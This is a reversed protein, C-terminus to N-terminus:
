FKSNQPCVRLFKGCLLNQRIAQTNQLIAQTSYYEVVRMKSNKTSCKQFVNCRLFVRQVTFFLSTKRITTNLAFAYFNGVFFKGRIAQTNQLIAQTSCYEVARMKSNKTSCKQPVNCRVASLVGQRVVIYHIESLCSQIYRCRYGIFSVATASRKM